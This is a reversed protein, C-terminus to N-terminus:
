SLDRLFQNTTKIEKVQRSDWFDFVIYILVSALALSRMSILDIM